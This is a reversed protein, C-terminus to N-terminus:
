AFSRLAFEWVIIIGSGGNGGQANQLNVAQGAGGAGGGGSNAAGNAGTVTQNAGILMLEFCWRWLHIIWRIRRSRGFNGETMGFGGPM